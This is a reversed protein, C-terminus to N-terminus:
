SASDMGVAPASIIPEDIHAVALVIPDVVSLILKRAASRVDVANFIKPSEGLHAEDFKAANVSLCEMQMKLLALKAEIM